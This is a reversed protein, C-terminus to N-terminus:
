KQIKIIVQYATEFDFEETDIVFGMKELEKSSNRILELASAINKNSVVQNSTTPVPMDESSLPETVVLEEREVPTSINFDFDPTIMNNTLDEDAISPTAIESITNDLVPEPINLEEASQNNLALIPTEDMKEPEVPIAIENINLAPEENFVSPLTEISQTEELPNLAKSVDVSPQIPAEIPTEIPVETTNLSSDVEKNGDLDFNFVDTIGTAVNKETASENNEINKEEDTPLTFFKGVKLEEEKEVQSVESSVSDEQGIISPKLLSNIDVPDKELVTPIDKAAEAIKDIDLFGPNVETSNSTTIDQIDNNELAVPQVDEIPNSPISNQITDSVVNTDENNLKFPNFEETPNVTVQDENIAPLQEPDDIIIIPEEMFSDKGVVNTSDFTPIKDSIIPMIRFPNDIEKDEIDNSPILMNESGSEETDSSNSDTLLQVIEEDTKRVTLRNEIIKNLMQRQESMNSLKLLSRAHRESIKEELVAEQVEEDLNLLRLKNAVTSQTKGLKTALEEQTLYGMDLIKKYSIAEEIPTLDKRQVNEILAVEASDKDNLETIVAPITQKGALLSAKYRREGAIIEYKDGMARVVIPQIVGHEKISKCLENISDENFKIRPQFRNPLVDNVDLDVVRKEFEM